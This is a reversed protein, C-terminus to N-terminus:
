GNYQFIGKIMMDEGLRKYSVDTLRPASNQEEIDYGAVLSIGSDGAFLPAFFLCASDFLREKLFSGHLRAGGEVLVSCVGAKGLIKLVQQLDLKNDITQVLRIKVGLQRLEAMKNKPADNSCFVWTPAESDVHFVKSSLPSRLFTDIIIRIPDKGKFNDRRTTLSPNDIRVTEVGILIADVKDRIRHVEASSEKGTIWGSKGKVYNIKGDLSIGGKMITWPVAQTIYKVFPRIIEFCEDRLIGTVVEVGHKKLFSIGSGDVLPNPDTVGIVVRSIGNEIITQTCPPTKGTHNCPELTVYITTGVLSETVKRIANVEAHPSGASKHYGKSLVRGNKVIVAGVCPNPSTRGEGKRAEFLAMRMYHSDNNLM